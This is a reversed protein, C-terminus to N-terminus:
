WENRLDWKSMIPLHTMRYPIELWAEIVDRATTEGKDKEVCMAIMDLWREIARESCGLIGGTGGSKGCSEARNGDTVCVDAENRAGGVIGLGDSDLTRGAGGPEVGGDESKTLDPSRSPVRDQAECYKEIALGDKDNLLISSMERQLATLRKAATRFYGSDHRVLRYNEDYRFCRGRADVAISSVEWVFRNWVLGCGGDGRPQVHLPLGALSVPDTTVDLLLATPVPDPVDLNQRLNKAAAKIRMLTKYSRVLEPCNERIWGLLGRSRGVILPKGGHCKMKLSNDVFCELDLLLGGLRLIAFPTGRRFNWATRIESATPCRAVTARRLCKSRELLYRHERQSEVDVAVHGRVNRRPSNGQFARRRERRRRNRELRTHYSVLYRARELESSEASFWRDGVLIGGTDLMSTFAREEDTFLCSDYGDRRM